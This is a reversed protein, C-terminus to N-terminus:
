SRLIRSKLEQKKVGQEWQAHVFADFSAFPFCPADNTVFKRKTHSKRALIAAVCETVDWLKVTRASFHFDQQFNLGVVHAAFIPHTTNNSVKQTDISLNLQFANLDSWGSVSESNLFQTMRWFYPWLHVQWKKYQRNEECHFSSM